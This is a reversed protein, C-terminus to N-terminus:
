KKSCNKEHASQSGKKILIGCHSCPIRFHYNYEGKTYWEGDCESCNYEPPYHKKAHQQAAQKSPYIKIYDQCEPHVCSFGTENLRVPWGRKPREEAPLQPQLTIKNKHGKGPRKGPCGHIAWSPKENGKTYLRCPKCTNESPEAEPEKTPVQIFSSVDVEAKSSDWRKLIMRRHFVSSSM